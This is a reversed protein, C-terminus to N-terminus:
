GNKLQAIHNNAHVAGLSNKMSTYTRVSREGGIGMLRGLMEEAERDADERLRQRQQENAELM